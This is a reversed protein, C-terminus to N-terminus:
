LEEMVTRILARSEEFPHAYGRIVDYTVVYGAIRTPEEILMGTGASETYVVSTGDEFGLITFSGALGPYYGRGQPVVDITINPRESAEILAKLQQRQIDKSGIVDRLVREDITLLVQPPNERTLVVQREMRQAVLEDVNHNDMAGMVAGAYDETQFLGHLLLPCFTRVYSAEKELEAYRPYSPPLSVIHRTDNLVKWLRVFLGNTKFFTDVDEAFKKSPINKAAEIQGILQPTYGLAKAFENKSLGAQTRWAELETAFARIAPSTHPDRQAPM